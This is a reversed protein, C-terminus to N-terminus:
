LSFLIGGTMHLPVRKTLLSNPQPELEVLIFNIFQVSNKFPVLWANRRVQLLLLEHFLQGVQREANGFAHLLQVM